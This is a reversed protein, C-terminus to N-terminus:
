GSSALSQGTWCMGPSPWATQHQAEGTYWAEQTHAVVLLLMAQSQARCSQDWCYGMRLSQAAAAAAPTGEAAAAGPPEAAAADLQAGAAAAALRAAQLTRQGAVVQGQAPLANVTPHPKHLLTLCCCCAVLCSQPLLLLLVLLLAAAEM